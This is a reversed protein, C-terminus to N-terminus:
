VGSRLDSMAALNLPRAFFYSLKVDKAQSTSFNLSWKRILSWHTRIGIIASRPECSSFRYLGNLMQTVWIDGEFLTPWSIPSSEWAFTRYKKILSTIKEAWKAGVCVLRGQPSEWWYNRIRKVEQRREIGILTSASPKLAYGGKLARTRERM